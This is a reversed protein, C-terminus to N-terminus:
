MIEHVETMDERPRRKALVFHELRKTERCLAAAGDDQVNEKNKEM